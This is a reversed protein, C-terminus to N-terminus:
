DHNLLAAIDNTKNTVWNKRLRPAALATKKIEILKRPQASGRKTESNSNM